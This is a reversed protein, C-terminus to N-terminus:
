DDRPKYVSRTRIVPRLRKDMRAQELKRPDVKLPNLEKQERREAQLQEKLPRKLAMRKKTDSKVDLEDKDSKWLSLRVQINSVQKVRFQLVDGERFDTFAWQERFIFATSQAGIDIFAGVGGEKKPPVKLVKGEVWTGCTFANNPTKSFLASDDRMTVIVDDPPKIYLVRVVVQQGEELPNEVHGDTDRILGQNPLWAWGKAGFYLKAGLSRVEMVLADLEQGVKLHKPLLPEGEGAPGWPHHIGARPSEAAEAEEAVSTKEAVSAVAAAVVALRATPGRSSRATHRWRPVAFLPTRPVFAVLVGALAVAAGVLVSSCHRRPRRGCTPPRAADACRPAPAM